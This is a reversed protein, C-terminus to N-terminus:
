TVNLQLGMSQLGGAEGTWTIRWALISSHTAMGKEPPDEWPDYGRRRCQCAPEEGSRWWLLGMSSLVRLDASVCCGRLAGRSHPYLGLAAALSLDAKGRREGEREM